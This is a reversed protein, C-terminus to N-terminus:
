GGVRLCELQWRHFGGFECAHLQLRHRDMQMSRVHQIRIRIGMGRNRNHGIRIHHISHGIHLNRNHGNRIRIHDNILKNKFCVGM